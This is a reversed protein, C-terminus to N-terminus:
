MWIKVVGFHTRGNGNRQFSGNRFKWCAIRRVSDVFCFEVKKSGKKGPDKDSGLGVVGKQIEKWSVNKHVVLYNHSM